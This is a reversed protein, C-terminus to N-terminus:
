IVFFLIGSGGRERNKNKCCVREFSGERAPAHKLTHKLKHKLKLKQKLKLTFPYTFKAAVVPSPMPEKNKNKIRKKDAGGRLGCASLEGQPRAQTENAHQNRRACLTVGRRTSQFNPIIMTPSCQTSGCKLVTAFSKTHRYELFTICMKDTPASEMIRRNTHINQPLM